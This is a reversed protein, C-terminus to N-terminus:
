PEQASRTHTRASLWQTIDSKRTIGHVTARWVGRDMTNELCSCQLPNGNGERGLQLVCAWNSWPMRSRLEGVLSWVQTGQMSPLNKGLPGGRSDRRKKWIALSPKQRKCDSSGQGIDPRWSNNWKCRVQKGCGNALLQEPDSTTSVDVQLFVSLGFTNLSHAAGPMADNQVKSPLLIYSTNCINVSM